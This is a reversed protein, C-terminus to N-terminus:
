PALEEWTMSGWFATSSASAGWALYGGPPIIFADGFDFYGGGGVATTIGLVFRTWVPTGVITCAADVKAASAAALAVSGSSTAAGIYNAVIGTIPTTHTVVGASSWGSILGVAVGTAGVPAVGFGGGRVVLNVTSAAPNSLCFGTYTTALAASVTTTSANAASFAAGAVAATTGLAPTGYTASYLAGHRDSVWSDKQQGARTGTQANNFSQFPYFLNSQGFAM